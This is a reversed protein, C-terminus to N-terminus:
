SLIVVATAAMLLTPVVLLAITLLSSIRLLLLVTLLSAVWLLLLYTGDSVKHLERRTSPNRKFCVHPSVGKIAATRDVGFNGEVVIRRGSVEVRGGFSRHAEGDAVLNRHAEGDVVRM